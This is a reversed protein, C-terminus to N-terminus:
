ELGLNQKLINSTFNPAIGSNLPMNRIVQVNEIKYEQKYWDAIPECVCIVSDCYKICRRELYKLIKKYRGKLGVTETELEHTDYILSNAAGIKKLIVGIPLVLISHCNIFHIKKGKYYLISKVIFELKSLMRLFPIKAFNAFFLKLRIVKRETDIQEEEKLGNEWFAIIEIFNALKLNIISKTEKLMRTEHKFSSPYIHVNKIVEM